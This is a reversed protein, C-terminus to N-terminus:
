NPQEIFLTSLLNVVDTQTVNVQGQTLFLHADPWMGRKGGLKSGTSILGEHGNMRGGDNRGFGLNARITLDARIADNAVVDGQSRMGVEAAMDDDLAIGSDALAAVGIGKSGDSPSGLVQFVFTLLGLEDNTVVISKAFVHGNMAARGRVGRGPNAVVVEEEAISVHGVFAMDGVVDDKGVVGGNGAVDRDAIM